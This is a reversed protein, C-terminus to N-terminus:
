HITTASRQAGASGSNERHRSAAFDYVLTTAKQVLWTRAFPFLFGAVAGMISPAVLAPTEAKRGSRASWIGILTGIGFSTVLTAPKSATEKLAIQFRLYQAASNRRSAILKKEAALIAVMTPIPKM